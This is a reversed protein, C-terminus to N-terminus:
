AAKTCLEVSYGSKSMMNVLNDITFKQIKGRKLDSIRSQTVGLSEAAESQTNYSEQIIQTLEQMLKARIKLNEAQENSFGLDDFISGKTTHTIANM